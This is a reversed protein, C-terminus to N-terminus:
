APKAAPHAKNRAFVTFHCFGQRHECEGINTIDSTCDIVFPAHIKAAAESAIDGVTGDEPACVTISASLVQIMSRHGEAVETHSETGTKRSEQNMIPHLTVSGLDDNGLLRM